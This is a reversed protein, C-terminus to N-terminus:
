VSRDLDIIRGAIFPGRDAVTCTASQGTKRNIVKVVTGKPLTRHACTGPKYRYWSAGGEQYRGAPRAAAFAEEAIRLKLPIDDNDAPAGRGLAGGRGVFVVRPRAPTIIEASIQRKATIRGNRRTVEFVVRQRGPSGDAEVRTEGRPLAPDDHLEKPTPIIREETVRTVEVREVTTSTTPPAVLPEEPRPAASRSAREPVVHEERPEVASALSPRSEGASGGWTLILAVFPVAMLATLVPPAFRFFWHRRVRRRTDTSTPPM